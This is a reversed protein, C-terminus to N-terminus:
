KNIYKKQGVEKYWFSLLAFTCYNKKGKQKGEDGDLGIWDLGVIHWMHIKNGKGLEM